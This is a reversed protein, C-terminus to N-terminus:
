TTDERESATEKVSAAAPVSAAAKSSPAAPASSATTDASRDEEPSIAHRRGGIRLCFGGDADRDLFAALDALARRSLRARHGGAISCYVSQPDRYRFSDVDLEVDRTDNLHGILAEGRLRLDKVIYLTDEVELYCWQSGVRLIPEGRESVDLGRNFLAVIKANGIAEGDHTWRGERDLRLKSSRRLIDLLAPDIM